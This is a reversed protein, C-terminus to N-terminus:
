YSADQLKKGSAREVYTSNYKITFYLRIKKLIKLTKPVAATAFSGDCLV